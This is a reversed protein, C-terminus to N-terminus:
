DSSSLPSLVWQWQYLGPKVLYQELTDPGCAGTGLGRLANDIHVEITSRENLESIKTALTLDADHHLKASFSGSELIDFKIHNNQSDSLRFWRTYQHAGTEQPVVYPHFQKEVSSEWKQIMQSKYRDPYSEYPGCGFWELANYQKPIEFCIGVRPIDSWQEPIRISEDFYIKSGHIRAICKHLAKANTGVHESEMVIWVNDESTDAKTERYLVDLAHLGEQMWSRRVGSIESMWGQKVGDNDTPPRWFSATPFSTLIQTEKFSISGNDDASPLTLAFPGSEVVNGNMVRLSQGKQPRRSSNTKKEKLQVQDWAVTHGEPAWTNSKKLRWKLQLFIEGKYKHRSFKPISISKSHGPLVFIDWEGAEVTEGNIQLEWECRM